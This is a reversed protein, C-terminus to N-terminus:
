NHIQCKEWREQSGRFDPKRRIYICITAYRNTKERYDQERSIINAAGFDSSGNTIQYCKQRKGAKHATNIFISIFYWKSYYKSLFPIGRNREMKM